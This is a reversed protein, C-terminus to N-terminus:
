GYTPMRCTRSVRIGGCLRHTRTRGQRTGRFSGRADTIPCPSPSSLGSSGLPPLWWAHRRGSRRCEARRPLVCVLPKSIHDWEETLTPHSLGPLIQYTEM